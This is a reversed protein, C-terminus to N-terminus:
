DILIFEFCLKKILLKYIISGRLIGHEIDDLSFVHADIRYAMTSWFKGGAQNLM